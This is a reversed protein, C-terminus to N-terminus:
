LGASFGRELEGDRLDGERLPPLEEHRWPPLKVHRRVTALPAQTPSIHDCRTRTGILVMNVSAIHRRSNGKSGGWFGM